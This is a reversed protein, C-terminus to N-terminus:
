IAWNTVKLSDFVTTAGEATNSVWGYKTATSHDTVTQTIHLTGNLYVRVTTSILEVKLTFPEGPASVTATTITSFAGSVYKFLGLSTGGFLRCYIFSESGAGGSVFRFVLGSGGSGGPDIVGEVIGDSIGADIVCWPIGTPSALALKNSQITWTGGNTTYANSGPRIEPVHSAIATGNTDTYTDFVADTPTFPFDSAQQAEVVDRDADAPLANWMVIEGVRGNLFDGYASTAWHAGIAARQNAAPVTTSGTAIQVADRRIKATGGTGHFGSYVCPKPLHLASINTGNLLGINQGSLIGFYNSGAKVSWLRGSSIYCAATMGAYDFYSGVYDEVVTNSGNFVFGWKTCGTWINPELLPPNGTSAYVYDASGKQNYIRVVELTSAGKFTAADTGDALQLGGSGDSFLDVIVNDSVREVRVLPCGAWSALREVVSFISEISSVSDYARSATLDAKWMLTNRVTWPSGVASNMIEYYAGQLDSEDTIRLSLLYQDINRIGLDTPSVDWTIGDISTMAHAVGQTNPAGIQKLTFIMIGVYQQYRRDYVISFQWNHKNAPIFSISCLDSSIPANWLDDITTATNLYVEYDADSGGTTDVYWMYWKNNRYAISFSGAEGFPGTQIITASSWTVGDSSTRYKVEQDDLSVYTKRYIVYLLDDNPNYVICPDSNYPDGTNLLDIPNTLGVPVEWTVGDNSAVISPNERSEFPYPTFVGWYTYGNWGNPFFVFQFHTLSANADYTPISLADTLVLRFEDPNLPTPDINTGAM